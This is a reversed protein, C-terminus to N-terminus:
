KVIISDTDDRDKGNLLPEAVEKEKLTRALPHDFFLYMVAGVGAIIGFTITTWLSARQNEAQTNSDSALNFIAPVALSQRM